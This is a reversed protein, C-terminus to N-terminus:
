VEAQLGLDIVKMLEELAPKGHVHIISQISSDWRDHGSGKENTTFVKIDELGSLVKNRASADSMGYDDKCLEVAQDENLNVDTFSDVIDSFRGLLGNPQKVFRWAM